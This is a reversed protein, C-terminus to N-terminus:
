YDWSDWDMGPAAFSYTMAGPDFHRAAAVHTDAHLLNVQGGHGLRNTGFLTDETYNDPDADGAPFPFNCDGSIVYQAPFQVRSLMVSAPQGGAEIFAARAGMFYSFPSRLHVRRYSPCTLLNTTQYYPLLPRTWAPPNTEAWSVEAHAMPLRGAHDDAYLSMALGLQHLQSRCRALEAAARAQRLAPLLLSALVALVALVVLLELLTLGDQGTQTRM